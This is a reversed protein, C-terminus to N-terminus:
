KYIADMTWLTIPLNYAKIISKVRYVYKLDTQKTIILVIGARKGTKLRYHLSQGIAEAYKRGFDFEIAHSNTLCDTRTGDSNTYEVIGNKCWARVHFDENYYDYAKSDISMFLFFISLMLLIPKIMTSSYYKTNIISKM